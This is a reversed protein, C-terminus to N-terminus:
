TGVKPFGGANPPNRDSKPDILSVATDRSSSHTPRTENGEPQM